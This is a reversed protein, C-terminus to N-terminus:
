YGGGGTSGGSSGSSSYTTTTTPQAPQQTIQTITQTKTDKLIVSDETHVGGSMVVGDSHIHILENAPVPSGDPYYFQADYQTKLNNNVAISHANYRQKSGILYTGNRTGWLSGDDEWKESDLEWYDVGQLTIRERELTNAGAKGSLVRLEGVYAFLEQPLNSDDIMIGKITNRDAKIFLNDPSSTITITGKYRIHFAKASGDYLVKGEGYTIM